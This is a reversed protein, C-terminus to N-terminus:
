SAATLAIPNTISPEVVIREGTQPTYNAVLFRSYRTGDARSRWIYIGALPQNPEGIDLINSDSGMIADSIDNIVLTQGIALNNIYNEAAAQANAIAAQQQSATAGAVFTVTTSLSIGILDPQVATGVIPWATATNMQAQVMQLTSTPVTPSVAYVYCIYTGAQREFVVDQLGPVNLIALRLDAEAAGNKSSLKLNIRYRYDDDMEADDGSVVGFNNTVLLSGFRFDTYGQFNHNSIAGASVNGSSGDSTCTAAFAVSSMSAPLTVASDTTYTPGSASGTSLVTGAPIIISNGSNISGFTGSQVYFIFNGDSVSSSATTGDLRPIGYVEGLFDLNDGTAFPLLSQGLAAYSRSELGGMENGAIDAFARAKGGPNTQTIGTNQLASLIDSQFTTVTQPSQIPM